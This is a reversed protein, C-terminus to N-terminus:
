YRLRFDTYGSAGLLWCGSPSTKCIKLRNLEVWKLLYSAEEIKLNKGEGWIMEVSSMARLKLSHFEILQSGLQQATICIFKALILLRYKVSGNLTQYM